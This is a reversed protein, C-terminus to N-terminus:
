KKMLLLTFLYLYHVIIFFGSKRQDLYSCKICTQSYQKCYLVKM